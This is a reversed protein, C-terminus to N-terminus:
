ETIVLHKLNNDHIIDKAEKPRIDLGEVDKENIWLMKTTPKDFCTFEKEKEIDDQENIDVSYIFLIEHFKKSGFEFFNECIRMLKCNEESVVLNLEEKIERILAEITKEGLRVRGGVLSFFGDKEGNQILIKNKYRFVAAVRFNFREEDLKICIDKNDM